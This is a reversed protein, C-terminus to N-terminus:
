PRCAAPAYLVCQDRAVEAKAAIFTANSVGNREANARADDVAAQVLEVGVVRRVASAMSLGITGTGCCLDLLVSRETLGCHCRLLSCLVEAGGTNVQTVHGLRTTTFECYM